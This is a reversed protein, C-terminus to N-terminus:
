EVGEEEVGECGGGGCRLAGLWVGWFSYTEFHQQIYEVILEDETDKSLSAAFTSLLVGQSAEAAM